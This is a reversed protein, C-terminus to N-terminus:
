SGTAETQTQTGKIPKTGSERETSERDEDDIQGSQVTTHGIILDRRQEGLKSKSKISKLQFFSHLTGKPPVLDQKKHKRADGVERTTRNSLTCTDVKGEQEGRSRKSPREKREDQRGKIRKRNAAREESDEEGGLGGFKSPSEGGVGGEQEYTM